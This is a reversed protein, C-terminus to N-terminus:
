EVEILQLGAEFRAVHYAGSLAGAFRVIHRGTISQGAPDHDAYRPYFYFEESPGRRALYFDRLLLWAAYPLRKSIAWAKRSSLAQSQRQDRGDAYPGSILTRFTRTESFASCLSGPLVTTPTAAAVVGPM